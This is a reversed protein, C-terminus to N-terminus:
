NCQNYAAKMYRCKEEDINNFKTVLQPYEHTNATCFADVPDDIPQYIRHELYLTDLKTLDKYVVSPKFM